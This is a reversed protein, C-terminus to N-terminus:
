TQLSSVIKRSTVNDAVILSGAAKSNGAAKAPNFM